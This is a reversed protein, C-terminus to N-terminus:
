VLIATKIRMEDDSKTLSFRLRTSIQNTAIVTGQDKNCDKRPNCKYNVLNAVKITASAITYCSIPRETFTVQINQRLADYWKFSVGMDDGDGDRHPPHTM